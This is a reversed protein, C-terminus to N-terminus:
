RRAPETPLGATVLTLVSDKPWDNKHPDPCDAVTNCRTWEAEDFSVGHDLKVMEYRGLLATPAWYYGIWGQGREYARAVSGDLGAASGTDVLTFGADEGGYAKYVQGTVVTGGWGTPGTHM